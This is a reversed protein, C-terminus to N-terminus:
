EDSEKKVEAVVERLTEVPVAGPILYRKAFIQAPVGQLGYAHAQRVDQTVELDYEAYNAPDSMVEAFAEGDLGAGEAIERLVELQSIDKAELWYGQKVADHFAHNGQAEAYKDAILAVRSNIGFPGSNVEIGYEQRMMREFQPKSVENIHRLYEPTIPPSGAPRLEYAHWTIDVAETEQLQKLNLAAAYCWPCAFDSWVDVQIAM